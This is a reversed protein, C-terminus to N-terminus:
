RHALPRVHGLRLGALLLGALLIGMAFGIGVHPWATDDDSVGLGPAPVSAPTDFRDDFRRNSGYDARM